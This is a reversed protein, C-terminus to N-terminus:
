ILLIFTEVRGTRKDRRYSFFTENERFTILVGSYCNAP